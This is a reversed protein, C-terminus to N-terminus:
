RFTNISHTPRNIRHVGRPRPSQRSAALLMYLTAHYYHDAGMKIWRPKTQGTDPNEIITKATRTMERAYENVEVSPRPIRIRNESFTTHVKDMWENRNCKVIGSKGDFVPRGPMQESYQCLYVTYPESKQFERVGHDFPGSDIICGHVNMKLALDHLQHLDDMRSVHIIDYAEDGTRIGVVAHITKGIDVGMATEGMSVMQNPDKTCRSLVVTESLQNEAEVAAIGLTSRMFEAMKKGEINNFQYMYEDLDAYPSILGDLWFGAERRGPFDTEWSGDSVFIEKHCHVCARIWKGGVQIISDPFSEVLSTYRGCGQCRIQWKRQDSEEYLADIGYNPFTPSGFNVEHGFLSRKLRQKSLYVMDMDMLDIEDRMVCDCAISRLNDTDKVSSGAVKKPQAGVMVISRGNIEKCMTTNTDGKKMLWPNFQFIPDFAVKSLREVATVTPMMYIIHQNYRRYYCAHVAELYKTTTMCVQAGKKCNMIKKDCNVLDVLYPMGQLTFKIGSRLNMKKGSAWLLPDASMLQEHVKKDNM